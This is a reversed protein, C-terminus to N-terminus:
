LNKIVCHIVDVIFNDLAACVGLWLGRILHCREYVKPDTVRDNDNSAKTRLIARMKVMELKKM